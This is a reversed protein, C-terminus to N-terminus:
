VTTDGRRTRKSKRMKWKRMKKMNKDVFVKIKDVLKDPGDSEKSVYNQSPHEGVTTINNVAPNVFPNQLETTLCYCDMKPNYPSGEVSSSENKDTQTVANWEYMIVLTSALKENNVTSPHEAKAQAGQAYEGTIRLRIGNFLLGGDDLIDTWRLSTTESETEPTSLGLNKNMCMRSLTEAFVQNFGFFDIYGIRQALTERSLIMEVLVLVYVIALSKWQQLGADGKLEWNEQGLTTVVCYAKMAPFPSFLGSRACEENCCAVAEYLFPEITMRNRREFVGVDLYGDTGDSLAGHVFREHLERETLASLEWPEYPKRATQKADEYTAFGVRTNHLLVNTGWIKLWDNAGQRGYGNQTTNHKETIFCFQADMQNTPIHNLRAGSCGLMYGRRVPPADDGKEDGDFFIAPMRIGVLSSLFATNYNWGEPPSVTALKEVGTGTSWKSETKAVWTKDVRVFADPRNRLVTKVCTKRDKCAGFPGFRDFVPSLWSHHFPRVSKAMRVVEAKTVYGRQVAITFPNQNCPHFTLLGKNKPSRDVSHFTRSNTELQEYFEDDSSKNYSEVM